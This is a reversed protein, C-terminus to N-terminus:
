SAHNPRELAAQNRPLLVTVETYEGPKTEVKISGGHERVIDHALSLGLGTNRGTERTTFFPNFMREVVEPTMGTGNDRVSIVVGDETSYTRARLEPAYDSGSELTKEAMAQCANTMLNAIVRALDEPVATIEGLGPDLDLAVEANFSSEQASVARHARDAQDAVVQNLDFLRFGGGTGRDLTLMGSVIGNARDSHRVIRGMNDKLDRAMLATATTMIVLAAASLGTLAWQGQVAAQSTAACLLGFTALIMLMHRVSYRHISFRSMGFPDNAEPKLLEQPATKGREM